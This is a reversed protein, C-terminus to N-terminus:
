GLLEDIDFEKYKIHFLNEGGVNEKDEYLVGLTKDDDVIEISSYDFFTDNIPTEKITHFIEDSDVVEMTKITGNKRTLKSPNSLLVYEKSNKNLHVVSLNCWPDSDFDVEKLKGHWNEGKDMSIQYLIKNGNPTRMFSVVRGDNLEVLENESNAKSVIGKLPENIGDNNPDTSSRKWTLGNDDSYIFTTSEVKTGPNNINEANYYMPFILRGNSLELGSGPSTGLFYMNKDKIEPTIDKPMAWSKGNDDSYTYWIFPTSMVKLPSEKFYINSICKGEEYLDGINRFPQDDVTNVTYSTVLGDKDFVLGDRITYINNKDDVLELYEIGNINQYGRVKEAKLYDVGSKFVDVIMHVRGTTSSLLCMDIAYASGYEDKEDFEKLDIVKIAEGFESSGKEKIRVVSDINGWDAETNHRQDAGAIVTGDKTKILSPIRYNPCNDYGPFFLNEGTKIKEENIM